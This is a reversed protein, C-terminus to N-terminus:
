VGFCSLHEPVAFPSWGCSGGALCCSLPAASGLAGGSGTCTIVGWGPFLGCGRLLRVGKRWVGVFNAVDPLCCVVEPSDGLLLWRDGVLVPALEGTDYVWRWFLELWSTDWVAGDRSCLSWELTHLWGALRRLFCSLGGEFVQVEDPRWEDSVFDFAEVGETVEQTLKLACRALRLHMEQIVGKWRLRWSYSRDVERYQEVVHFARDVGPRRM